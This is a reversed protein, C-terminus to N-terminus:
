PLVSGEPVLAFSESELVVWFQQLNRDEWNAGVDIVKADHPLSSRAPSVLGHLVHELLVYTMLVKAVRRERKMMEEALCVDVRARTRPVGRDSNSGEDSGGDLILAPHLGRTPPGVRVHPSCGQLVAAPAPLGLM